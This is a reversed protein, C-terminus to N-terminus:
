WNSIPKETLVRIKEAWGYKSERLFKNLYGKETLLVLKFIADIKGPKKHLFVPLNKFVLWKIKSFYQHGSFSLKESIEKFDNSNHALNKQLQIYQYTHRSTCQINLLNVRINKYSRTLFWLVFKSSGYVNIKHWEGLKLWKM